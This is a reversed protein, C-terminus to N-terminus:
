PQPPMPPSRQVIAEISGLLSSALGGAEGRATALNGLFAALGGAGDGVPMGEPHDAFGFTNNQM